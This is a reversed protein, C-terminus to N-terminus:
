RLAEGTVGPVRKRWWPSGFNVFPGGDVSITARVRFNVPSVLMTTTRLRITHNKHEFPGSEYYITYYGGLDGGIAGATLLSFGRSDSDHRAVVKNEPHYVIRSRVKYPGDPGEAEIESEYFRGDVGPKFVETGTLRGAPGFPSEPVDWEFEWTGPFYQEFNFTPLPDDPKTPRGLDPMQGRPLQKEPQRALGISVESQLALLALLSLLPILRM